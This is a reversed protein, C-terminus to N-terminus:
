SPWGPRQKHRQLRIRIKVGANSTTCEPLLAMVSGASRIRRAASSVPVLSVMFLTDLNAIPKQPHRGVVHLDGLAFFPQRSM